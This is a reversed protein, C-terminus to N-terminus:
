AESAVKIKRLIGKIDDSTMYKPVAYTDSVEKAAAKAMAGFNKEDLGKVVPDIGLSTILDKVQQM